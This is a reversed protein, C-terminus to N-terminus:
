PHPPLPQSEDYPSALFIKKIQQVIRNVQRGVWDGSERQGEPAASVSIAFFVSVLVAVLTRKTHSHM